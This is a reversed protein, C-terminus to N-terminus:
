RRRERTHVGPNALRRQRYSLWVVGTEATEPLRWDGYQGRCVQQMCDGWAKQTEGTEAQGTVDRARVRARIPRAARQNTDALMITRDPM